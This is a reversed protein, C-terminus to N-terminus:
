LMKDHLLIWITLKHRQYQKTYSDEDNPECSEINETLREFDAYIIFPVRMSNNYNNFSLKSGPTPLSIKVADHQKCYVVHKNLGEKTKFSNICRECFYRVHEHSSVQSSLLRSMDKVWCYHNTENNSMFLLNVTEKRDDNNSIRLPYVENKNDYGFVNIAYDRNNKEFVSIKDLQVPFKIGNWDFKESNTRM